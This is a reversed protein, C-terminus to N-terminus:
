RVPRRLRVLADVAEGTTGRGDPAAVSRRVQEARVTELGLGALDALVDAPTFLVRPDQPGGVGETLNATDHGVVLLTGGPALAGAASRLATRRDDAPIQLYAVLVLDHGGPEPTHTLVDAHVWDIRDATGGPRTAALARGRHLAVASFDVATAHWGREALWISNRGEGAALDLARGPPLDACERVVWRNPEVGWLQETVRYRADWEQSDM